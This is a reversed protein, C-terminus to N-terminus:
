TFFIYFLTISILIYFNNNKLTEASGSFPLQMYDYNYIMSNSTDIAAVSTEVCENPYMIKTSIRMRSYPIINFVYNNSSTQIVNLRGGYQIYVLVGQGTTYSYLNSSTVNKDACYTVNSWPFWIVSLKTQTLFSTTVKQLGNFSRCSAIQNTITMTTITSTLPKVTSTTTTITSALQEVTTTTTTTSTTTPKNTTTTTTTPFSNIFPFTLNTQNKNLYITSAITEVCTSSCYIKTYISIWLSNYVFTYSNTGLQIINFRNAYEIYVLVGQGTTFQNFNFVGSPISTDQCYTVNSWPYWKLIVTSSSLTATIKQLGHFNSCSQQQSLSIILSSLVFFNQQFHM